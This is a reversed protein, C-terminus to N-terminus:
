ETDIVTTQLGHFNTIGLVPTAYVYLKEKADEDDNRKRELRVRLRHPLGRVGLKWVEQNLKPDIRVDKVGMAKQAFKEVEKIAKPARKKFQVDHVRKHLHITYERTVVDSLASRKKNQGKPAM